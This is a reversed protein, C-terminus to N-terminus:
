SSQAEPHIGCLLTQAVVTLLAISFYPLGPRHRGKSTAWAFINGYIIPVFVKLVALLNLQAANIEGKGMGTKQATHQLYAAVPISRDHGLMMAALTLALQKATTASGFVAFALTWSLNSVLSGAKSGLRQFVEKNVIGGVIQSLGVCTAFKGVEVPGYGMVTKMYLFNIDYINAYDGFSQLGLVTSLTAVLSGSQFLKLFRLPSCAAIDFSRRDALSLTETFHFNVWLWTILFSVASLAFSKAGGVKAGILPGLACGAGFFARARAMAMALDQGTFLDALAANLPGLFSFIMSGSLMRDFFMVTMNRPFAVVGFHLIANVLPGILLFPKRGHMDSLRGFVPNIFLEIAAACSSMLGMMKATGAADGKKMTLVMPARTPVVMTISMMFLFLAVGLSSAKRKKREKEGNESM